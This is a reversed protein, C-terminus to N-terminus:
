GGDVSGLKARGSGSGVGGGGGGFSSAGAGYIMACFDEGTNLAMIIQWRWGGGGISM